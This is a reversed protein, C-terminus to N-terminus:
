RFSNLIFQINVFGEDTSDAQGMVGKYGFVLCLLHHEPVFYGKEANDGREITRPPQAHFPM